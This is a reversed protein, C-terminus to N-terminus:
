QNKRPIDHLSMLHKWNADSKVPKTAECLWRETQGQRGGKEIRNRFSLTKPNKTGIPDREMAFNLENANQLKNMGGDREFICHQSRGRVAPVFIDMDMPKAM